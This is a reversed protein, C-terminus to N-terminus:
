VCSSNNKKNGFKGGLISFRRWQLVASRSSSCCSMLFLSNEESSLGDFSLRFRLPFLDECAELDALWCVSLFSLSEELTRSACCFGFFFFDEARIALWCLSLFCLSEKSTWSACGFGFFFDGAWTALSRALRFSNQFCIALLQSGRRASSVALHVSPLWDVTRQPWDALTLSSLSGPNYM